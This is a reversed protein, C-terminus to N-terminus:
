KASSFFCFNLKKENKDIYTQLNARPKIKGIDKFLHIVPLACISLFAEFCKWVVIRLLKIMLKLYMKDLKALYPTTILCTICIKINCHSSTM